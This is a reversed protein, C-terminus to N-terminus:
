EIAPNPFVSIVDGPSSVFIQQVASYNIEKNKGVIKVRYYNHYNMPFPDTAHYAAAYHMAIQESIATWKNTSGAGEVIFREVTEPETIKWSLLSQGNEYDVKFYILEM